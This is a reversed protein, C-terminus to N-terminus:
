INSGRWGQLFKAYDLLCRYTLTGRGRRQGRLNHIVGEFFVLVDGSCLERMYVYMFRDSAPPDRFHAFSRFSGKM